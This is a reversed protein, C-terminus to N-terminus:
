YGGIGFGHGDYDIRPNDVAPKTLHVSWIERDDRFAFLVNERQGDPYTFLLLIASMDDSYHKESLLGAYRAKDNNLLHVGVARRYKAMKLASRQVSSTRSVLPSYVTSPMVFDTAVYGTTGDTQKRVRTWEGDINLATLPEGAKLLELKNYDVGKQMSSRLWTNDAFTYVTGGTEFANPDAAPGQSRSAPAPATTNATASTRTPSSPMYDPQSASRTFIYILVLVVLMGVLLYLLWKAGDSGPETPVEPQPATPQPVPAPESVRGGGESIVAAPKSVPAEPKQLQPEPNPVAIPRKVARPASVPRKPVAASTPNPPPVVPAAPQKASPEAAPASALENGCKPCARARDSVKAGCHSCFILAM